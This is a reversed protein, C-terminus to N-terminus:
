RQQSPKLNLAYYEKRCHVRLGRRRSKLEISRMTGGDELNAPRFGMAYQSRLEEQM